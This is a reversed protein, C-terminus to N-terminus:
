RRGGNRQRIAKRMEDALFKHATCFKQFDVSVGDSMARILDPIKESNKFRFYLRNNEEAIGRYMVGNLWLMPSAYGDDTLYFESSM